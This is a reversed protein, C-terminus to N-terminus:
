LSVFDSSSTRYDPPRLLLARAAAAPSGLPEGAAAETLSAFTASDLGARIASTRMLRKSRSGQRRMM